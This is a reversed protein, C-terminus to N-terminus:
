RSNRRWQGLGPHIHLRLDGVKPARAAELVHLHQCPSSGAIALVTSNACTRDSAVATQNAPPRRGKMDDVGIGPREGVPFEVLHELAAPDDAAARRARRNLAVVEHAPIGLSFSIM